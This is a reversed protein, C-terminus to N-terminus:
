LIEEIGLVVTCFGNTDISAYITKDLHSTYAYWQVGDVIASGGTFNIVRDLEKATKSTHERLEEIVKGKIFQATEEVTM